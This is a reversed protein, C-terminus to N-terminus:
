DSMRLCNKEKDYTVNAKALKENLSSEDIENDDCLTSLSSYKDRLLTNLYSVLINIDNPLKM